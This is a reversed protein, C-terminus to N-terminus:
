YDGFNALAGVSVVGQHVSLLKRTAKPAAALLGDLAARSAAAYPAPGEGLAYSVHPCVDMVRAMYVDFGAGFVGVIGDDGFSLGIVPLEGSADALAGYLCLVTQEPCITPVWLRYCDATLLSEGVGAYFTAVEPLVQEMLEVFSTAKLRQTDPDIELPQWAADYELWAQLSPPLESGDAMRLASVREAALPKPRPAKPTADLMRNSPLDGGAEQIAAIVAAILGRGRVGAADNAM